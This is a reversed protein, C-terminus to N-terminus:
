LLRCGQCQQVDIGRACSGAQAGRRQAGV